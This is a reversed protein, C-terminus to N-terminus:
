GHTVDQAKEAITTARKGLATADLAIARWEDHSKQLAQFERGFVWMGRAGAYIIVLLMGIPTVGSTTLIDIWTM